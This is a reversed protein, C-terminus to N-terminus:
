EILGLVESERVLRLKEGDIEIEGSTWQNVLVQDGVKLELPRLRGKVDRHGRGVALVRAKFHGSIEATDPIYLGGATMREGSEIQLLVRDDLPSIFSSWNRTTERTAPALTATAARAKANRTIKSPSKWVRPSAKGSKKPATKKATKKAAAAAKKAAKRATAKKAAKKTPQGAKRATIKKKKLGAKAKAKAM